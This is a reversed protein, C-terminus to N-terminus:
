PAPGAWWELHDPVDRARSLPLVPGDFGIDDWVRTEDASGGVKAANNALKEFHVYGRTLPFDLGSIRAVRQLTEPNGPPSAHVELVRDGLRLEIRNLTERAAVFCVGEDFESRAISRVVQYDRVLQVSELGNGSGCDRHFV